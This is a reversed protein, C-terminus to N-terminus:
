LNDVLCNTIKKAIINNLTARNEPTVVIIQTDERMKIDKIISNSLNYHITGLLPKSSEVAKLLANSFATSLFEMPGIEDIAIIDANQIADLISGAGIVELDTLNVHYKGVAPGTTQNVHALWGRQGTSLDMLEFGVRLGGEHVERCIMGGIEYGRKKLEKVTRRLISTKGIGSPGTVLIIRKLM